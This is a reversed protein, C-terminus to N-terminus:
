VMYGGRASRCVLEECNVGAEGGVYASLGVDFGLDLVHGSVEDSFAPVDRIRVEEGERVSCGMEREECLGVRDAARSM